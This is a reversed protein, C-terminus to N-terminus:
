DKGGLSRDILDAMALSAESDLQRLGTVVGHRDSEPRNQSTKWKGEMSDVSIEIGVIAKTLAEIYQAPADDVSWPKEFAGENHDTLSSLHALLEPGEFLKARGRVHVAVYNWTPVVKGHEQKSAYWSPTIYQEPGHFIALVSAHEGFDKWQSNARALHCRLVPSEEEVHLVMPLHSATLGAAGCSILTALPNKRIFDDLVDIRKEAFPAPNYM